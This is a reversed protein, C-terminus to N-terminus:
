VSFGDCNIRFTRHLDIYGSIHGSIKRMGPPIIRQNNNIVSRHSKISIVAIRNSIILHNTIIASDKGDPSSLIDTHRVWIFIIAATETETVALIQDLINRNLRTVLGNNETPVALIGNYFIGFNFFNISPVIGSGDIASWYFRIAYHFQIIDFYLCLISACKM